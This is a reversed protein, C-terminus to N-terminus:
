SVSHVQKWCQAVDVVHDGFRDIFFSYNPTGDEQVWDRFAPWENCLGSVMVSTNPQMYNRAFVDRTLDAGSELPLRAFNHWSTECGAVEESSM